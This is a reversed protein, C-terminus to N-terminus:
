RSKKCTKEGKKKSDDDSLVPELFETPRLFRTAAESM